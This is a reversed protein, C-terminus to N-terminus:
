NQQSNFFHSLRYNTIKNININDNTKLFKHVGINILSQIPKTEHKSRGRGNQRCQSRHVRLLKFGEAYYVGRTSHGREEVLFSGKSGEVM